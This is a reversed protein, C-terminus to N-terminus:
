PLLGRVVDMTTIVGAPLGQADVVFLRHVDLTVLQRMVEEAPAEPRVAFVVPTMVERVRTRDAREVQFGPPLAEGAAREFEGRTYFEPAPRAYSVRERDHEVIDSRSVVGVARGARDVVPAASIHRDILLVIAEQLTADAPITVPEPTMLEAATVARLVLPLAPRREVKKM